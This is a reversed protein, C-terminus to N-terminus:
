AHEGLQGTLYEAIVPWTMGDSRRELVLTDEHAQWTGRVLGPKLYGTWRSKCQLGSRTNSFNTRPLKSGTTHLRARSQSQMSSARIKMKQGASFSAAPHHPLKSKKPTASSALPPSPPPSLMLGTLLLSLLVPAHPTQIVVRGETDEASPFREVKDHFLTESTASTFSSDESFENNALNETSHQAFVSIPGEEYPANSTHQLLSTAIVPSGDFSERQDTHFTFPSDFELERMNQTDEPQLFMSVQQLFICPIAEDM